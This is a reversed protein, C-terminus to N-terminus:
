AKGLIQEVRDLGGVSGQVCEVAATRLSQSTWCPIAYPRVTRGGGRYGGKYPRPVGRGTHCNYLSACDLHTFIM